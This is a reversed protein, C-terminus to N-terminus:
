FKPKVTTNWLEVESTGSVLYKPTERAKETSISYRQLANRLPCLANWQDTAAYCVGSLSQSLAVTAAWGEHGQPSGPRTQYREPDHDRREFSPRSAPQLPLPKEPPPPSREPKEWNTLQSEPLLAGSPSPGSEPAVRLWEQANRQGSSTALGAWTLPPRPTTGSSSPAVASHFRLPAGTSDCGQRPVQVVAPSNLREKTPRLSENNGRTVLQRWRARTSRTGAGCSFWPVATRPWKRPPATTTAVRCSLAVTLHSPQTSARPPTRSCCSSGARGRGRDQMNSEDKHKHHSDKSTHKKFSLHYNM